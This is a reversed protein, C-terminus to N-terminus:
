GSVEGGEFSHMHEESSRSIHASGLLNYVAASSKSFSLFFPPGQLSSQSTYQSVLQLM